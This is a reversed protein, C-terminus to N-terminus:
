MREWPHLVRMANREVSSLAECEDRSFLVMRKGDKVQLCHLQEGNVLDTVIRVNKGEIRSEFPKVDGCFRPRHRNKLFSVMVETKEALEIHRVRRGYRNVRLRMEDIERQLIHFPM